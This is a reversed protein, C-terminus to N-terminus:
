SARVSKTFPLDSLPDRGELVAAALLWLGQDDSTISMFTLARDEDSVKALEVMLARIRKCVAAVDIGREQIEAIARPRTTREFIDGHFGGTAPAYAELVLEIESRYSM